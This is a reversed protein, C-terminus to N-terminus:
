KLLGSLPPEHGLSLMALAYCSCLLLMALSLMALSLMALSLMALAYCSCLLNRSGPPPEAEDHVRFEGHEQKRGIWALACVRGQWSEM